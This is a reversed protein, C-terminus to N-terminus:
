PTSDGDRTARVPPRTDAKAEPKKDAEPRSKVDAKAEPKEDAEPRSKVDAKAEPKKDAPRPSEVEAKACGDDGDDAHCAVHALAVPPRTVSEEARGAPGPERAAGNAGERVPAAAHPEVPAPRPDDSVPPAPALVRPAPAGAHLPRIHVHAAVRRHPAHHAHPQELAPHTLLRRAHLEAIIAPPAGRHARHHTTSRGSGDLRDIAGLKGAGAGVGVGVAMTSATVTALKVLGAASAGTASAGGAGHAGSGFLRGWWTILRPLFPLPAFIAADEIRRRRIHTHYDRCGPCIRLHGAVLRTRRGPRDALRMLEARVSTCDADRADARSRLGGRARFILSRVTTLPLDLEEAVQEYSMGHLERLLLATRQPSPLEALDALLERLEERGAVGSSGAFDPAAIDDPVRSTASRSRIAALCAHHAVRYLWPKFSNPPAGRRIAALAALFVEQHVDRADEESRLFRRCYALIAGSYREYLAELAREDGRAAISLLVEDSQWRALGLM